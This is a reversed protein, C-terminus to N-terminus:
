LIMVRAVYPLVQVRVWAYVLDATGGGKGGAGKVGAGAGKNASFEFGGGADAFAQLYASNVNSFAIQVPPTGTYTRSSCALHIPPTCNMIAMPCSSRVRNGFGEARASCVEKRRNDSRSRSSADSLLRNLVKPPLYRDM